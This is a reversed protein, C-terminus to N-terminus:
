QMVGLMPNGLGRFTPHAETIMGQVEKRDINGRKTIDCLSMRPKLAGWRQCVLEWWGM